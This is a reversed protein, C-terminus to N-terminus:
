MVKIDIGKYYTNQNLSLCSRQVILPNNVYILFDKDFFCIIYVYTPDLTLTANPTRKSPVSGDEPLIVEYMSYKSFRTVQTYAKLNVSKIYHKRSQQICSRFDEVSKKKM